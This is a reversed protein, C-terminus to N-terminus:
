LWQASRGLACLPTGLVGWGDHGCSLPARIALFAPGPFPRASARPSPQCWWGQWSSKGPSVFIRRHTRPPIRGIVPMLYGPRKECLMTIHQFCQSTLQEQKSPERLVVLVNTQLTNGSFVDVSTHHIAEIWRMGTASTHVRGDILQM